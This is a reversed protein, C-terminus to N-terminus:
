RLLSIADFIGLRKANVGHAIAWDVIRSKLSHGPCARPLQYIDCSVRVRTGDKMTGWIYSIDYVPCGPDTLLRFRDVRVLDPDSIHCYVDYNVDTHDYEGMWVPNSEQVGYRAAREMEAEIDYERM